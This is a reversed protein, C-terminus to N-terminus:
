GPYKPSEFFSDGVLSCVCSYMSRKVYIYCIHLLYTTKMHTRFIQHPTPLPSDWFNNCTHPYTGTAPSIQRAETPSYSYRAECLSSTGPYLSAWSTKVHEPFPTPPCNHTPHSHPLLSCSRFHTATFLCVFLICDLTSIM